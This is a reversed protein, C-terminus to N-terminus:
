KTIFKFCTCLGCAKHLRYPTCSSINGVTDIASVYIDKSAGNSLSLSVEITTSSESGPNISSSAIEDSCSNDSFVRIDDGISFGGMLKITPRNNFSQFSGSLNSEFMLSSITPPINDFVYGVSSDTCISVNNAPNTVKIYFNFSGPASLKFNLSTSNSNEPVTISQYDTISSSRNM